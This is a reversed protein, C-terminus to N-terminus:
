SASDSVQGLLVIPGTPSTSGGRPEVSVGVAAFGELGEPVTVHYSTALQDDVELLGAPVPDGEAPILWVQYTQEADLPELGSWVLLGVSGSQYFTGHAAPAAETGPLPIAREAGAFLALQAEDAQLQQLLSLNTAELEAIRTSVAVVQAQLSSLEAERQAASSQLRTSYLTSLLLLGLAAAAALQWISGQMMRRPQQAPLRRTATARMPVGASVLPRGAVDARVRAMLREKLDPSLPGLPATHALSSAAQEVADLQALLERQQEIYHDVSLMEEPELVGLVYAPLLDVIDSFSPTDTM